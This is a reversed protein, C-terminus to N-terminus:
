KKKFITNFTDGEIIEGGYNLFYIKSSLHYANDDQLFFSLYYGSGDGAIGISKTARPYEDWGDNGTFNIEELKFFNYYRYKSVYKKRLEYDSPSRLFEKYFEPLVINNKIEIEIIDNEIQSLGGRNTYLNKVYDKPANAILQEISDRISIFNNKLVPEHESEDEFIIQTCDDELKTKPYNYLKNYSSSTLSFGKIDNEKICDFLRQSVWLDGFALNSLDYNHDLYVESYSYGKYEPQNNPLVELRREKFTFDIPTSASVTDHTLLGRKRYITKEIEIQDIAITDCIFLFYDRSDNGWDKSIMQLQIPYFKHEPLNFNELIAKLKKSVVKIPVKTWSTFEHYDYYEEPTNYDLNIEIQDNDLTDPFYEIGQNQIAFDDDRLDVFGVDKSYGENIVSNTVEYLRNTNKNEIYELIFNIDSDDLISFIFKDIIQKSKKLEDWYIYGDLRKLKDWDWEVEVEALYSSWDVVDINEILTEFDITEIDDQMLKQFESPHVYQELRQEYSLDIYRELKKDSKRKWEYYVQVKGPQDSKHKLLHDEIKEKMREYSDESFYLKNNKAVQGFEFWEEQYYKEVREEDWAMGPNDLLYYYSLENKYKEIFDDSWNIKPNQSLEQFNLLKNFRNIQEHSLTYYLSIVSLFFDENQLMLDKIEQNTQAQAALSRLLLLFIFISTRTM